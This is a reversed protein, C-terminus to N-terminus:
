KQDIFADYLALIAKKRDKREIIATFNIESSGQAIARVNIGNDGLVTFIKGAIGPAYMMGPGILAILSVDNDIKISFWQKGFLESNRLLYSVKMSDDKNIVFTINNESSSQSIFKINIENDDLLAFLNSATRALSIMTGSQVTVMSLRTISSIAKIIVESTVYDKVISTFNSASPDKFSRIESPIGGKENVDLCLPHLVRSGFYALEKAELYSIKELLKSKPIIRPDANLFGPVDKWYIVKCKFNQRLSYAIVAATLDTGGRGLTTIKNSKTAGYFGTICVIDISNSILSPVLKEQVLNETEDLLPLANGFNEDTKIVEDSSLFRSKFGLSILYKCMIYTSLKEGYSLIIDKLNKTPRILKVVSGLNTIETISKNIFNIIEDFYESNATFLNNVINKHVDSIENVIKDCYFSYENSKEYFEILKDTIGKLASTVVVLKAKKLFRKIISTTQKFSEIDELCSGGFKLVLLPNLKHNVELM